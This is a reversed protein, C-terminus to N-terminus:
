LQNRYHHTASLRLCLTGLGVCLLYSLALCSLLVTWVGSGLHKLSLLVANLLVNLCTWAAGLGNSIASLQQAIAAYHASQPLKWGGYCLGAFAGILLLLSIGRLAVPWAPWPQQYWRAREQRQIVALVRPALSAPAELEPLSKLARDIALELRNRTDPPM